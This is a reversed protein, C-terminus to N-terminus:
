VSEHRPCYPSIDKLLEFAEKENDVIKWFSFDQRSIAQYKKMPFAELWRKLSQWYDRGVLVVPIDYHLKKTTILAGIEFFEDLTGFGGPFFVYAQAAHALMMRRVFLYHFNVSEKVYKNKQEDKHPFELNLGLSRGGAELAGRNAAEMIGPGGGTLVVMGRNVLMKALARAQKYERENEKDLHSGFFSVVKEKKLGKLFRFGIKFEATMKQLRAKDSPDHSPVSFYLNNATKKM